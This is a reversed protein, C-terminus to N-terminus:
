EFWWGINDVIDTISDFNDVLSNFFDSYWQTEEEETLGSPKFQDALGFWAQEGILSPASTLYQATNYIGEVIQDQTDIFKKYIFYIGLALAGITGIKLISDLVNM